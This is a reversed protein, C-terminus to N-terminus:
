LFEIEKFGYTRETGHETTLRIQGFNNIDTIIANFIGNKDKFLSPIGRKYLNTLYSNHITKLMETNDTQHMYTTFHQLIKNALDEIVFHKKTVIALSTPNPADSVFVEQNVNLGVGIVSFDIKRGNIFNQILVGAIKKNNVYLDNPWKISVKEKTIIGSVVKLLSLSIIETLVFQESPEINAPFCAISFTLNKKPESEWLNNGYGRGHTQNIARLVTATKIKGLKYLRIAEANTSDLEQFTFYKFEM